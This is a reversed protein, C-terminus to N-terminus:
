QVKNESFVDALTIFCLGAIGWMPFIWIPVGFLPGYAYEWAGSLSIVVMEAISGFLAIGLFTKVYRFHDVALMAVALLWIIVTLLATNKYFVIISSLLLLFLVYKAIHGRSIKM